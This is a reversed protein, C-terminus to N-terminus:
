PRCAGKCCLLGCPSHGLLVEVMSSVHLVLQGQLTWSGKSMSVCSEWRPKGCTRGELMDEHLITALKAGRTCPHYLAQCWAKRSLVNHAKLREGPPFMIKRSYAYPRKRVKIQLKWFNLTDNSDEDGLYPLPPKDGFLCKSWFSVKKFIEDEDRSTSIRGRGVNHTHGLRCTM